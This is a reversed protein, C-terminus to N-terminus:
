ETSQNREGFFNYDVGNELTIGKQEAMQRITVLRFGKEILDPILRLSAEISSEHIDHMLVISGDEVDNMIVKYTNDANRTAWDRTDISWTIIPLGVLNAVSENYSGGPPRMVDAPVGCADEIADNTKKMQQLVGDKTTSTLITHDYSHNGLEMGSDHMRKVVDPFREVNEGLMFFTAKANNEELCDLLKDTFRGPGDDFTLAVMPRHKTSDYKGNEDFFYEKGDLELWGTTMYGNKDFYYKAGDVERWDNKCFSGDSEQYKTGKKDEYLGAKVSQTTKDKQKRSSKLPSFTGSMLVSAFITLVILLVAGALLQIKHEQIMRRRREQRWKEQQRKRIIEARRLRRLEESSLEENEITTTRHSSTNSHTPNHLNRQRTHSTRHNATSRSTNGPNERHPPHSPERYAM